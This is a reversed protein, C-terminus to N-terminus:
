RKEGRILLTSLVQAYIRHGFDNPHNVGNGTMDWDQKHRFLEAWMSTMDALVAGEGCLGALADRFQPFLEQHLTTWDKNGLMSAVLIFEAAPRKQRVADMMAKINARYRVAPVGGADNMGFALIVLDPRHAAVKGINALGWDTARGGVAENWLSIKAGYASQLNMVLLDQYPPQFPPVNAWGSANCGTSISDGFLVICLPRGRELTELTRPLRRGAFTPVPGAWADGAHEYSVLTQMDHYEHGGGFLIEGKGDRHPLVFPQSKPPRRLGQPTQFPIRSGTPLTIERTGPKWVYDRGEVYVALGSSSCVSLIKTPRFLIAAHPRDAADDKIFLVSEGEMTNSLWFPKLKAADFTWRQGSEAAFTSACLLVAAFSVLPRKM